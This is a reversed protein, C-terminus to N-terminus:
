GGIEDVRPKHWRAKAAKRAIRSRKQPSLAAARRHAMEGANATTFQGPARPYPCAPLVQPQRRRQWYSSRKAKALAIPDEIAVVKLGLAAWLNWSVPGLLKTPHPSIVKSTHGRTLGTIEDVVENPVDLEDRRARLTSLIDDYTRLVALARPQDM